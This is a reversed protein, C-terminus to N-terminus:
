RWGGAYLRGISVPSATATRSAIAKATVLPSCSAELAIAVRTAVRAARGTCAITSAETKLRSPGATPRRRPRRCSRRADDGDRRRLRRLHDARAQRRGRGPVEDGPPEAQRRARAVRQDAPQDASGQDLAADVRDVPAAEVPQVRDPTNPVSIASAIEGTSPPARRRQEHDARQAPERPARGPAPVAGTAAALPDIDAASAKLWPALSAWFATPTIAASSSAAPRISESEAGVQAVDRAGSASVAPVASPPHRIMRVTPRRM